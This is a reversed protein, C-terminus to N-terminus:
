PNNSVSFIARNITSRAYSDCFKLAACCKALIIVRYNIKRRTCSSQRRTYLYERWLDRISTIRTWCRTFCTSPSSRDLSFGSSTYVRCLNAFLLAPLFLEKRRLGLFSFSLHSYVITLFFFLSLFLSHYLSLTFTFFLISKPVFYPYAPFVFFLPLFFSCHATSCAHVELRKNKALSM